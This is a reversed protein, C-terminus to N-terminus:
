TQVTVTSQALHLDRAAATFSGARALTVFTRLLRTDM